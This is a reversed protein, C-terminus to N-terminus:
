FQKVLEAAGKAGIGKVGPINDSADGLLAYYFTFKQLLFFWAHTEADHATLTRDKFTDLMMVHEGLVQLMDKDSTVLVCDYGLQTYDQVLSFCSIM